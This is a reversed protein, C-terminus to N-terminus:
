CGTYDDITAQGKPITDKDPSPIDIGADMLAQELAQIRNALAVVM